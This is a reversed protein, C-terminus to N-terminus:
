KSGTEPAKDILDMFQDLSPTIIIQTRRNLQRGEPTDNSAIPNYEGRGGATLRSPDVGFTDQLTQVVSSARLASLDWNNRINTRSIPVNDTNGEVLVDYSKYDKIIKAIKSLIEMASPSIQYSGTKFLMNDALSIYVVGKLVKIDVDKLESTDLSRTLRTSLAMLLSDSKSKADVLKKIYNNSANIEDVLKSINVNGSQNTQISQALTRQLAAYQEKLEANNRRAQELLGGLSKADSRSEALASQSATYQEQLANYKKQTVCGSAAALSLAITFILVKNKM